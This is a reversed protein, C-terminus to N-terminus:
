VTQFNLCYSRELVSNLVIGIEVIRRVSEPFLDHTQPCNVPCCNATCMRKILMWSLIRCHRFPGHEYDFLYARLRRTCQELSFPVIRRALLRRFYNVTFSQQMQMFILYRYVSVYVNVRYTFNITIEHLYKYKM